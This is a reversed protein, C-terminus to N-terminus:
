FCLNKIETRTKTQFDFETRIWNQTVPVRIWNARPRTKKGVKKRNLFRPELKLKPELCLHFQSDSEPEEFIYIKIGIRSSSGFTLRLKSEAKGLWLRFQALPELGGFWTDAWCQYFAECM